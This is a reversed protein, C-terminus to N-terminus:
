HESFDEPRNLMSHEEESAEQCSMVQLRENRGSGCWGGSLRREKRQEEGIWDTALGMWKFETVGKGDGGTWGGMGRDQQGTGM